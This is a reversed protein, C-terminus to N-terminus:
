ISGHKKSAPHGAKKSAPHGARLCQAARTSPTALRLRGQRKSRGPRSAFRARRARAKRERLWAAFGSLDLCNLVREKPVGGKRAM